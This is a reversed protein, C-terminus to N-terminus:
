VRAVQQEDEPRQELLGPAPQQPQTGAVQQQQDTTGSGQQQGSGPSNQFNDQFGSIANQVFDDFTLKPRQFGKIDTGMVSDNFGKIKDDERKSATAVEDKRAGIETQLRAMAASNNDAAIDRQSAGQLGIEEMRASHSEMI